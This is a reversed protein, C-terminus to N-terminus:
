VVSDKVEGFIDVGNVLLDKGVHYAFSSPSKFIMVMKELKKWDAKLQACDSMGTKVNELLDAVKKIGDIVKTVDKSEFDKFADEADKFV